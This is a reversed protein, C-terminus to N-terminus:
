SNAMSDAAPPIISVEAAGETCGTSEEPLTAADFRAPLGRTDKESSLLKEPAAAAAVPLESSEWASDEFFFLLPKQRFTEKGKARVRSCTV